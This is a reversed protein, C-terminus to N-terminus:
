KPRARERLLKIVEEYEQKRPSHSLVREAESLATAEHEAKIDPNAGQNLFLRVMELRGWFAAEILPTRGYRGVGNLDAGASLLKEVIPRRNTEVARQLPLTGDLDKNRICDPKAKLMATIQEEDGLAIATFFDTELGRAALIKIVEAYRRNEEQTKTDESFRVRAGALQLATQGNSTRRTLNAKRELLLEVVKPQGGSAASHLPTFVTEEVPKRMFEDVYIAEVEAGHDILLRASELYGQRAAEHLLTSGFALGKIYLRVKPDAGKELLLKVVAPYLLARLLPSDKWPGWSQNPDAGNEILLSVIGAHGMQCASHLYNETRALRPNKQLLAKTGEEDSLSIATNLDYSAGADLLAKVIARKKQRAAEHILRGGASPAEVDAGKEILYEMIDLKGFSVAFYLPTFQNYCKANIDAGNEVLWVVAEKAGFRAAHHLPTCQDKDTRQIWTPDSKLVRLAQRPCDNWLYEHPTKLRANIVLVTLPPSEVRGTWVGNTKAEDGPAIELVAKIEIKEGSNPEPVNQWAREGWFFDSLNVKRTESGKPPITRTRPPYGLQGIWVDAAVDRKQVIPADGDGSKVRFTLARHGPQCKEEWIRLSRDSHNTIGIEFAEAHPLIVNGADDASVIISISLVNEGQAVPVANAVSATLALLGVLSVIKALSSRDQRLREALPRVMAKGKVSHIPFVDWKFDYPM